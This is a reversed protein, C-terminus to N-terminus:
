SSRQQGSKKVGRYVQRSWTCWTRVEWVEESEEEQRSMTGWTVVEWIGSTREEQRSLRDWFGVELIM